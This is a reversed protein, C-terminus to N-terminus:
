SSYACHLLSWFLSFSNIKQQNWNDAEYQLDTAKLGEIILLLLEWAEASLSEITSNEFMVNGPAVTIECM